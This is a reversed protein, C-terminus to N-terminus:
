GRVRGFQSLIKGTNEPDAGPCQGLFDRRMDFTKGPNFIHHKKFANISFFKRVAGDCESPREGMAMGAMCLFVTCPDGSDLAQSPTADPLNVTDDGAKATQVAGLLCILGIVLTKKM